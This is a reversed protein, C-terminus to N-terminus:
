PAPFGKYVMADDGVIAIPNIETVIAVFTGTTSEVVVAYQTNDTLEKVAKPDVVTTMGATLAVTQTNVLVGDAFRYWRLTANQATASQIYIPTTWGPDGPPGLTRTVNPLFLKSSPTSTSTYIMATMQTLTTVAAAFSGGTITLSFDGDPLPPDVKYGSGPSLLPGTIPLPENQTITGSFRTFTLVPAVTANGVNQVYLQSLPDTGNTHKAVYPAYATVNGPFGPVANYSDGMAPLVGPLDHHHNSVVAIPEPASLSASYVVGATLVPEIRPDIFQSRGPAVTRAISARSKGDLSVFNATVQTAEVGV